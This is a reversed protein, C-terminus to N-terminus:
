FIPFCAFISTNFRARLKAFYVSDPITFKSLKLTTGKNPLGEAGLEQIAHQHILRAAGDSPLKFYESFSLIQFM